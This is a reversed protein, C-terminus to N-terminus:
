QKGLMKSKPLVCRDIEGTLSTAQSNARDEFKSFWTSCPMNYLIHHESYRPKYIKDQQCLIRFPKFSLNSGVNVGVQSLNGYAEGDQTHYSQFRSPIVVCWHSWGFHSVPPRFGSWAIDRARWARDAQANSRSLWPWLLEEKSETMLWDQLM